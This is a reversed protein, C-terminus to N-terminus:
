ATALRRISLEWSEDEASVAVLENPAAAMEAEESSTRRAVM